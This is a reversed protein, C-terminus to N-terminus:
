CACNLNFHLLFLDRSRLRVQAQIYPHVMDRGGMRENREHGRRTLTADCYMKARRSGELNSTTCAQNVM